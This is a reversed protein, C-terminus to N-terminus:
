CGQLAARLPALERELPEWSKIASTYIPRRVQKMSLTSVVRRTRYFKMCTDEWPLGCHNVIGRITTEPEKVLTEYQVDYVAGPLVRHWHEMLRRYRCYYRGLAAQDYSYPHPGVFHHKYMSWCTDMPDRKCHIIVARPFLVRILGILMYNHPNKTVLRLRNEPWYSRLGDLAYRALLAVAKQDLRRMGGPFPEGTLQPILKEAIHPMVNIEGAGHVTSHSALIQEVLSTGSRPMGLVFIPSDPLGSSPTLHAILDATFVQEMADFQALWAAEAYSVAAYHLRNAEEYYRFARQLDGHTEHIMGLAFCVCIRSEGTCDPSKHLRELRLAPVSNRSPREILVLNYLYRPDDPRFRLAKRYYALAKTFNGEAQYCIAIGNLTDPNHPANKLAQRFATFALEFRGLTFLTAGCDCLANTHTPNHKLAEEFYPLAEYFERAQVLQRGQQYSIEALQAASIASPM